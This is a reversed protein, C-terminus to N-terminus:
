TACRTSGLPGRVTTNRQIHTYTHTHFRDNPERQENSDSRTNCGTRCRIRRGAAHHLSFYRRREAIRAVIAVPLRLQGARAADTRTYVRGLGRRIRDGATRLRRRDDGNRDAAAADRARRIPRLLILRANM